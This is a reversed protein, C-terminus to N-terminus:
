DHESRIQKYRDYEEKTLRSQAKTIDKVKEFRTCGSWTVSGMVSGSKTINLYSLYYESKPNLCEFISRERESRHCYECTACCKMDDTKAVILTPQPVNRSDDILQSPVMKIVMEKVEKWKSLEYNTVRKSARTKPNNDILRSVEEYIALLHWEELWDGYQDLWIMVDHAFSDQGVQKSKYANRVNYRTAQVVMLPKAEDIKAPDNINFHSKVPEYRERNFTAEKACKSSCCEPPKSEKVKRTQHFEKGCVKCIM